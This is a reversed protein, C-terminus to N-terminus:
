QSQLSHDPKKKDPELDDNKAFSEENRIFSNTEHHIYVFEEKVVDWIQFMLHVKDLPVTSM